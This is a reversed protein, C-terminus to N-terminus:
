AGIYLGFSRSEVGAPRAVVGGCPGMAVGCLIPNQEDCDEWLVGVWANKEPLLEKTRVVSFGCLQMGKCVLAFTQVIQKCKMM